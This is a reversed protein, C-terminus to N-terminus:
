RLVEVEVLKAESTRVSLAYGAVRIELPDGAPARRVLEVETGELLGLHLMRQGVASHSDVATIVAREGPRLDALTSRDPEPTRHRRRRWWRDSRRHEHADGPTPDPSSM